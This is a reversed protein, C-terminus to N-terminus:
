FIFYLTRMAISDLLWDLNNFKYVWDRWKKNWAYSDLFAYKYWWEFNIVDPNAWVITTFHWYRTNQKYDAWRDELKGDASDKFFAKSVKIWITLAWWKSLIQKITNRDTYKNLEIVNVNHERELANVWDIWKWGTKKSLLWKQTQINAIRKIEIEIEEETDWLSKWSNWYWTIYPAYITCFMRTEKENGQNVVPFHPNNSCVKRNIRIKM